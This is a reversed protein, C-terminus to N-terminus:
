LEKKRGGRRWASAAFAAGSLAMWWRMCSLDYEHHRFGSSWIINFFFFVTSNALHSPTDAGRKPPPPPRPAPQRAPSPRPPLPHAKAGRRLCRTSRKACRSEHTDEDGDKIATGISAQTGGRAVRSAIATSRSSSPSSAITIMSSTMRGVIARGVVARGVNAGRRFFTWVGTDRRVRVEIDLAANNRLRM